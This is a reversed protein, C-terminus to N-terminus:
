LHPGSCAGQHPDVFQQGAAEAHAPEPRAFEAHDHGRGLADDQRVLIPEPRRLQNLSLDTGTVHGPTVQGPAEALRPARSVESVLRDEQAAVPEAGRHRQAVAVGELLVPLLVPLRMRLPELEQLIALAARARRSPPVRHADGVRAEDGLDDLLPPLALGGVTQGVEVAAFIVDV